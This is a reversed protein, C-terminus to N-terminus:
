GRFLGKPHQYKSLFIIYLKSIELSSSTDIKIREETPNRITKQVSLYDAFIEADILGTDILNGSYTTFFTFGDGGKKAIFDISVFKYTSDMDLPKITGDNNTRLLSTVRNGKKASPRVTYVMGSVYPYYPNQPNNVIQFDIGDELAQKIESGRLNALCITNGFPMLEYVDGLTINGVSLDMRIAGRNIFGLEANVKQVFSDIVLPGAGSNLGVILDDEATALIQKRFDDIQAKYPALKQLTANDEPFIRLGKSNNISNIIKKYTESDTPIDQRNQVFRDSLVIVQQANFDKINGREDFEVMLKALAQGWKWAQVVLTIVGDKDKIVTPYDGEPNLAHNKFEEGGLLTHSHGGIIIDIGKIEGALRKDEEYGIHSILIIKNIGKQEVESVTKKLSDIVNNIKITPGPMSIENTEDTTVGIIAVAEKGFYKIVYPKVRKNISPEKSFDINASVIDFLAQEVLKKPVLPGKDFEHNGFTMVDIGIYNLFDIDADGQFKTFYITGQVADGAHLFLLNENQRKFEDIASKLRAFGGPFAKVSIGDFTM